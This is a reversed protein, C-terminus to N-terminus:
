KYFVILLEALYELLEVISLFRIGVFLGLAGGISSILTFESMKPSQSVEIYSSDLYSMYFKVSGNENTSSVYNSVIADFKISSCELPCDMLCDTDNEYIRSFYYGCYEYGQTSYYNRLTCNYQSIAKKNKCQALCNAQRYTEDAILQCDNYPEEMKHEVNKTFDVYFKGKAQNGFGTVLQSWDLINLYNDSFFVDVSEFGVNLDIIFIFQDKTSNKLHYVLNEADMKNRYNNFKICKSRIELSDAYFDVGTLATSSNTKKIYAHKILAHLNPADSCFAVSPMLHNEPEKRKTLTFVDNKYFNDITKAIIFLGASLSIVTMVTWVIKMFRSEAKNIHKLGYFATTNVLKQSIEKVKKMKSSNLEQFLFSDSDIKKKMNQFFQTKVQTTVSIPEELKEIRENFLTFKNLIERNQDCEIADNKQKIFFVCM